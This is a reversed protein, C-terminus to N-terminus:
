NQNVYQNTAFREAEFEFFNKYYISNSELNYVPVFYPIDLYIYKNFVTKIKTSKIKASLPNLWTNFIQFESYQYSHIIEHSITHFKETGNEYLFGRGYSVGLDSNLTSERRKFVPTGTLISTKFDFSGKNFGAAFTYISSPLFRLRFNNEPIAYDLRVIGLDLNWYKLFQRNLAASEIISNGLAHQIKAPWGAILNQKKNILFVTKKATYNLGGGVCGQWFGKVFNRKWNGGKPTNIVAGVGATIGGFSINYIILKREQKQANAQVFFCSLLCILIKVGYFTNHLLPM